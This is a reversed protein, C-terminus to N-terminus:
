GAGLSLCKDIVSVILVQFLNTYNLRYFAKFAGLVLSAIFFLM